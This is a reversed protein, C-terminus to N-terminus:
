EKNLEIRQKLIKRYEIMSFLQTVMLDYDSPIDDEELIIRSIYVYLDYVERALRTEMEVLQQYPNDIM